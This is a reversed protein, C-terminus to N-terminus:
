TGEKLVWREFPYSEYRYWHPDPERCVGNMVDLKTIARKRGPYMPDVRKYPSIHGIVEANRPIM